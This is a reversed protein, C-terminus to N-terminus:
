EETEELLKEKNELEEAWSALENEKETYEADLRNKYNLININKSNLTIMILVAILIILGVNLVLSNVFRNKYVSDINKLKNKLQKNTELVKKNGTEEVRINKIQSNEVLESEILINQLEKLFSYGIPTKFINKELIKEYVELVNKVNHFNIKSRMYEVGKKENLAENYEEEGFFVYGDVVYKEEVM